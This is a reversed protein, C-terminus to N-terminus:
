VGDHRFFVSCFTRFICKIDLAVSRNDIYYYELELRKSYSLESRGNCAWWGTLGPRVSHYRDDGGHMELEGEVLPRPGVLSMEGKLVNLFQPLEDLGTARLLRGNRTIRPDNRLKQAAAWEASINEDKLLEDFMKDSDPLMTRFKYLTFPKGNLGIRKQSYILCVCDGSALNIVFIVGAACMAFILGMSSVAIDFLRKVFSYLTPKIRDFGINLQSMINTYEDM